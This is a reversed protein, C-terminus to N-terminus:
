PLPIRVILTTGSGPQSEIELTGGVLGVRERIGVLGLRKSEALTEPDFGQGDDEVVVRLEGHHQRISVSVYEAQSHRAVNTLAEQVVRYVTTEVVSSWRQSPVFTQYEIEIGLRTSWDLVIQSLAADLGLDDLVTPRLRVAIRHVTRSLEDALNEIQLLSAEAATGPSLTRRVSKASMTLAALMQGLSDHLERSIHRREDEQATVLRQLLDRRAAETERYGTVDRFIWFLSTQGSTLGLVRPFGSVVADRPTQTGRSVCTEFSDIALGERLQALARYFRPRSGAALFLGLPKGPLFEPASRLLVAAARNARVLLGNGDTLM